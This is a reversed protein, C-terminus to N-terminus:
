LSSQDRLFKLAMENFDTDALDWQMALRQLNEPLTKFVAILADHDLSQGTAELVTDHFIDEEIEETFLTEPACISPKIENGFKEDLWVDINNGNLNASVVPCCNPGEPTEVVVTLQRNRILENVLTLAAEIQSSM